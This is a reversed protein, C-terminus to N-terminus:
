IGYEEAIKFCPVAVLRYCNNRCVFRQKAQLASVAANIVDTEPQSVEPDEAITEYYFPNIKGPRNYKKKNEDTIEDESTSVRMTWRFGEIMCNSIRCFVTGYHDVTSHSLAISNVSVSGVNVFSCRDFFWHMTNPIAPHDNTAEALRAAFFFLVGNRSHNETTFGEVEFRCGVFRIDKVIGKIYAPTNKENLCPHHIKFMCNVVRIGECNDGRKQDISFFKQPFDFVCNRITVNRVLAGPAVTDFFRVSQLASVTKIDRLNPVCKRANCPHRLQAASLVM